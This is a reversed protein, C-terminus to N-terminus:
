KCHKLGSLFSLMGKINEAKLLVAPPTTARLQAMKRNEQLFRMLKELDFNVSKDYILETVGGKKIVSAISDKM